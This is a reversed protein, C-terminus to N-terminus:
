ENTENKITKIANEVRGWLCFDNGNLVEYKFGSEHFTWFSEFIKDWIIRRKEWDEDSIDDPKDTQDQYHFDEIYDNFYYRAINNDCFLGGYFNGDEFPIVFVTVNFPILWRVDEDNLIIADQIKRHIGFMLKSENDDINSILKKYNIFEILNEQPVYEESGCINLLINRITQLQSLIETLNRSKFKIGNYIKTSM